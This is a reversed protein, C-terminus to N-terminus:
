KDEHDILNLADLRHYFFRYQMHLKKEEWKMEDMLKNAKEIVNQIGGLEHSKKIIANINDQEKLIQLLKEYYITFKNNMETVIEKYTKIPMDTFEMLEEIKATELVNIKADNRFSFSVQNKNFDLIFEYGSEQSDNLIYGAELINIFSSQCLRVINNWDKADSELNTFRKLNKIDEQKPKGKAVKIKEFEKLLLDTSKFHKILVYIERVLIKWLIDADSQVNMFRKKKGIIYGFSGQTVM